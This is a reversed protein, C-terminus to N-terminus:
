FRQGFGFHIEDGGEDNIGYDLRLLGLPSQFRVGVGFGFGSGPKDRIVAPEGPVDDGTGLDTAFDAFVVGGLPRFIPFRYEVSSLFYSRGSGVDGLDYGRVTSSGGLAFAEYPPLDGLVTGAQVNFALVEPNDDFTNGLIDVPLFYAYYARLRNMFINGRGIPISQETGLRLLSGTRPTIEDDRWDQTVGFSVTLLDDQGTGSLTLDNGEEDEKAIDGESDRTSIRSYNLGLEADWIGLPRMVSGGLRIVDERVRDGNPLEVEDTFVNSLSRRRSTYISYGLRDPYVERYPSTFRGGFEVGRGSVRVDATLQDGIGGLNTDRYTITAFLGIDTNYGGGLNVQGSLKERLNYTVDVQNQGTVAVDVAVAEFLDLSALREVDERAIAEQYYEGPQLQIQNRIYDVRTRGQIPQGEDDVASGAQNVFQINVQRVTPEAVEVTLVGAEDTRLDVVRALTYGRDAYWQNVRDSGQQLLPPNAVRGVQPQFAQMVVNPDLVRAGEVQVQQVTVPTVEYIVKIGDPLPETRVNVQSFIGTNLLATRDSALQTESTTFGRRTRVTQLVFQQIDADGGIVEVAQATFALETPSVPVAPVSVGPAPESYPDAAPANPLPFTDSTAATSPAFGAPPLRELPASDGELPAGDNPILTESSSDTPAAPTAPATPLPAGFPLSSPQPPAASETLPPEASTSASSTPSGPPADQYDQYYLSFQGSSSQAWAPIALGLVGGISAVSIWYRLLVSIQMSKSRTLPLLSAQLSREMDLTKNSLM